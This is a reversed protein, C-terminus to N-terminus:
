IVKNGRKQTVLEDQMPPIQSVGWGHPHTNGQGLLQGPGTESIRKEMNRNVIYMPTEIFNAITRLGEDEM